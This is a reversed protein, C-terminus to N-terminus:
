FKQSELLREATNMEAVHYNPDTKKDHKVALVPTGTEMNISLLTAPKFIQNDLNNNLYQLPRTNIVARVVTLTQLQSCTLSVREISKRLSMKTTGIPCGCSGGMWPSLEIIFSWKIKQDSLYSHVSSYDIMEWAMDDVNKTAKFNSM